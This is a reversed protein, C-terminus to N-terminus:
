YVRYVAFKVLVVAGAAMVMWFLDGRWAHRQNFWLAVLDYVLCAGFLPDTTLVALGFFVGFLAKVLVSPPTHIGLAVGATDLFLLIVIGGFTKAVLQTSLNGRTALPLTVLPHIHVVFNFLAFLTAIFFYKHTYLLTWGGLALAGVFYVPVYGLANLRAATDETAHFLRAIWWLQLLVHAGFFALVFWSSPTFAYRNEQAVERVNPSALISYLLTAINILLSLVVVARARFLRDRDVRPYGMLPIQQTSYSPLLSPNPVPPPYEEETM